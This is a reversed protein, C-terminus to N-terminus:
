MGGTVGDWHPYTRDSKHSRLAGHRNRVSTKRDTRGHTTATSRTRSTLGPRRFSSRGHILHSAVQEASCLRLSSDPGEATPDRGTLSRTEGVTGSPNFIGLVRDLSQGEIFQMVYFYRGQDEGTGFVPVINTHHLGAAAQAERRFREVTSPSTMLEPPLVKLAVLRGLSHQEALYVVGMGGRGVERQIRFDGLREPLDLDDTIRRASAQPSRTEPKLGEMMMLTPFLSRIRDSWQPHADAYGAISPREGRRHREIFEEALKEVPDRAESSDAM